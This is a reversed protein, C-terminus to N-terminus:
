RAYGALEEELQDRLGATVDRTKKLKGQRTDHFVQASLRLGTKDPSLSYIMRAEAPPNSKPIAMSLEVRQSDRAVLQMGKRLRYRVVEDLIQAARKNRILVSPATEAIKAPPASAVPQPTAPQPATSCGALLATSLLLARWYESRIPCMSTNM